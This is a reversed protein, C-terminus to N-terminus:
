ALRLDDPKFGVGQQHLNLHSNHHQQRIAYLDLAGNAIAVESEPDGGEQLIEYHPHIVCKEKMCNWLIFYPTNNM